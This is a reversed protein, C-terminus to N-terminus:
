RDQVQVPIEGKQQVFDDIEKETPQGMKAGSFRVKM